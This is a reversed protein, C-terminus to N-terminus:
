AKNLQLKELTQNMILSILRKKQKDFSLQTKNLLEWQQKYKSEVLIESALGQIIRDSTESYPLNFIYMMIYGIRRNNFYKWEASQFEMIKINKLYIIRRWAICLNILDKIIVIVCCGILNGLYLGDDLSGTHNYLFKRIVSIKMLLAHNLFKGAFPWIFLSGVRQWFDVRILEQSYDIKNIEILRRVGNKIDRFISKFRNFFGFGYIAHQSENVTETFDKTEQEMQIGRIVEKDEIFYPKVSMIWNFYIPNFCCAFVFKRVYRLPLHYILFRKSNMHFTENRSLFLFPYIREFITISPGFEFRFLFIPFFSLLFIQRLGISNTNIADYLSKHDKLSLLNLLTSEPALVSMLRLGMSMFIGISTFIMSGGITGIITLKTLGETLSGISQSVVTKLWIINDNKTRLMIPGKCQPCLINVAFKNLKSRSSAADIVGDRMALFVNNMDEPINSPYKSSNSVEELIPLTYMSTDDSLGLWRRISIGYLSSRHSNRNIDMFDISDFEINTDSENLIGNKKELNMVTVWNLLCCRHARLSCQCPRVWDYADETTGSPPIEDGSGLCIWCKNLEM